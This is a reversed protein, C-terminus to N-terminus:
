YNEKIRMILMALGCLSMIMSLPNTILLILTSKMAKKFILNGAVIGIFLSLLSQGILNMIKMQGWILEVVPFAFVGINPIGLVLLLIIYTKTPTYESQNGVHM